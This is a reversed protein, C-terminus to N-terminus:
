QASRTHWKVVMEKMAIGDASVFGPSCNMRFEYDRNPELQVDMSVTTHTEDFAPKGFKPYLDRTTFCLSYGGNLARDFKVVFKTVAPDVEQAGNAPSISVVKPRKADYAEVMAGIRPALAEFYAVIKPMFADLTAFHERDAEYTGFLDFLEGTWLFSRGEEGSVAQRAAAIGDHALLYRATATRVLSECVLTHGDGYAQLKMQTSVPRFVTDGAKDLEAFRNVLPNVYSHAFEHVLDSLIRSDFSPQKEADLQWVGLIAFMEERGDEARLSPGYNAGGNVLAPVVIFRAGPKAGFFKDFWTLDSKSEVLTRLRAGTLEYLDRHTEIFERFKSHVVFQRLAALFRRADVVTWRKDLRSEPSDFPLREALTEVNNINIALSMVADYSVSNKETVERAIRIADDNKFSAFYRDVDECYAPVRCQNYESNGALHFTISLLEIRPDSAIRAPQAFAPFGALFFALTSLRM